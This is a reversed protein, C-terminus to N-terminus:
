NRRGLETGPTVGRALTEMGRAADLQSLPALLNLRQRLGNGVAVAAVPDRHPPCVSDGDASPSQIGQTSRGEEGAKTGQAPAARDADV